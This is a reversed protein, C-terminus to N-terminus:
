QLILEYVKNYNKVGMELSFYEKAGQKILNRDLGSLSNVENAVEQFVNNKSLDVAIGSKYKEIIEKSDGVGTNAIVPIGMAMLEGQKTPSSAQKSFAPKIFFVSVNILSLYSPLDKRESSTILIDEKAIGLKSAESLIYEKSDMTLFLFKYTPDKEKIAKFVALMEKLMYWTGISGIYALLKTNSTLNLEKKISDVKSPIIKQKNFHNLDACCPIVQVPVEKKVLEQQIVEKGKHTLSIIYDAEELFQIEKKKFFNYITKYVPNKLNWIGGDIREDAWFGRMDFLFKVGLKRKLSLGVFASIYSRCHLISINKEKIIVKAMKTMTYIDKVTSLVPPSKTYNFPRWDISNDKCIEEIVSKKTQFVAEKEASMLTIDWGLASLGCLYPLVQSQGLPDTM